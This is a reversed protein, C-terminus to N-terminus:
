KVRFWDTDLKEALIEIQGNWGIARNEIDYEEKVNWSKIYVYM